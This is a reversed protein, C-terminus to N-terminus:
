SSSIRYQRLKWISNSGKEPIKTNPRNPEPIEENVLQITCAEMIPVDNTEFQMAAVFHWNQFVDRNVGYAKGSLRPIDFHTVVEPKINVRLVQAAFQLLLPVEKEVARKGKFAPVKRPKNEKDFGKARVFSTSEPQRLNLQPHRRKFAYYWTKGAIRKEKSFRHLIENREAIDFALLRLERPTIGVYIGDPGPATHKPTSNVAKRIEEETVPHQLEEQQIVSLHRNIHKLLKQTQQQSTNTNAYLSTFHKEFETICENNRNLTKGAATM